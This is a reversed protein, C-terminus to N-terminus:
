GSQYYFSLTAPWDKFATASALPHYFGMGNRKLAPLMLLVEGWTSPPKWGFANLIDSRYYLLYLVQSEPIGYLGGDIIMQILAGPSAGAITKNAGPFGRLDALSGRLALDNVYFQDVGLVADPQKGAANALTLKGQDTIISFNVKIGSAQTFREECLNQLTDAYQRSRIVWVDISRRDESGGDAGADWFSAALRKVAEGFGFFFNGRSPPLGAEPLAAEPLSTGAVIVADINLSQGSLTLMATTLTQLLSNEGESLVSMRYPVRNPKDILKQLQKLAVSLKNAEETTKGGSLALIKERVADIVLKWREMDATMGPLFEEIIWDRNPDQNNGTIKRLDVSLTNIEEAVDRLTGSLAHYREGNIVLAIEHVGKELYVPFGGLLHNHMLRHYALPVSCFEAFPVAGDIEIDVFVPSDAKGPMAARIGLKYFGSEHIEAFYGVTDMHNKYAAGDIANLDLGTTSYPFATYRPNNAIAISPRNKYYPKEAELILLGAAEGRGAARYDAYAPLPEYEALSLGYLTVAGENMRLSFNSTGAPLKLVLAGTSYAQEGRGVRVRQRGQLMQQEPYIDNGRFNKKYDYNVFRYFSPLTINAREADPEEGNVRLDFLNTEYNANRPEYEAVLCYDGAAPIFFSFELLSAGGSSDAALYVGEPFLATNEANDWFGPIFNAKSYYDESFAQTERVLRRGYAKASAAGGAAIGAFAIVAAAIIIRPLIGPPPMSFLSKPLDEPAGIGGRLFRKM